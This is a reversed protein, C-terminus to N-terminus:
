TDGKRSCSAGENDIFNVVVQEVHSALSTVLPMVLGGSQSMIAVHKCSHTSLQSIMEVAFCSPHVLHM